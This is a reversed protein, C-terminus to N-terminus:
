EHELNISYVLVDDKGKLKRISDTREVNAPELKASRSLFSELWIREGPDEVSGRNHQNVWKKLGEMEPISDRSWVLWLREVGKKDFVFASHEPITLELGPNLLSSGQNTSPSPFLFNFVPQEPRSGLGENVVYLHGSQPSSFILRVRDTRAFVSEQRAVIGQSLDSGEKQVIIGYQLVRDIGESSQTPTTGSTQVPPKPRVILYVCVFLIAVMVSATLWVWPAKSESRLGGMRDARKLPANGIKQPVSSNGCDEGYLNYVCIRAGHKVEVEGLDHLMSPWKSVSLLLETMAGSVLIHGADGCDMVRQAVNIGGGAVNRNANIDEVRQVPGTHIGMRLKLDPEKRLAHSIELACRVPAEVEGFFVLAMGDGTPLSLLQHRKLARGFDLTSRVTAQLMEVLRTQQDMPYQSYAVIDMFLVHAIELPRNSTSTLIAEPLVNM